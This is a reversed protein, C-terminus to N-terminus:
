FWDKLEKRFLYMITGLTALFLMALVFIMRKPGTPKVPVTANTLTTFVPTSAQLDAMATQERTTM